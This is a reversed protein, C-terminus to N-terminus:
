PCNKKQGNQAMKSIKGNKFGEKPERAGGVRRNQMDIM